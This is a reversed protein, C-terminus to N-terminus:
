LRRVSYGRATLLAVLGEDGTMHGAGVAVLVVAKGALLAAIKTAMARNREDYLSQRLSQAAAPPMTDLDHMALRDLKEADGDKWAGILAVMDKVLTGSRIGDVTSELMAVQAEEPMSALMRMQADVSELEVIRKGDRHARRALHLDIGLSADLGVKGIEFMTLAMALMQPKMARAFDAPLGYTSLIDGLEHMLAPPVHKELNDPPEYMAGASASSLADQTTLDAELALVSSAEYAAEISEPLPYLSAEGVHITGLLYVTTQPSRVEWLLGRNTDAATAPLGSTTVVLGCWLAILRSLM